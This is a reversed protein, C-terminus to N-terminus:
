ERRKDMQGTFKLWKDHYAPALSTWNPHPQAKGEGWLVAKCTECIAYPVSRFGKLDLITRVFVLFVILGMGIFIVATGYGQPDAGGWALLGSLVYSPIFWLVLALAAAKWFNRWFVFSSEEQSRIMGGKHKMDASCPFWLECPPSPIQLAESCSPCSVTSHAIHVSAELKNGCHPCLFKFLPDLSPILDTLKCHYITRRVVSDLLGSEGALSAVDIPADHSSLRRAAVTIRRMRSVSRIGFFLLLLAGASYALSLVVGVVDGRNFSFALGTAFFALLCSGAIIRKM